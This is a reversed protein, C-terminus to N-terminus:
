RSGVTAFHISDFGTQSAVSLVPSIYKYDSKKDAQIIIRGKRPDSSETLETNKEKLLTLLQGISYTKGEFLYENDVVSVSVGPELMQSKQAVPLLIKKELEIEKKGQHTSVLLYIVIVAFADVLSTLMLPAAIQTLSAAGSNKPRVTALGDIASHAQAEKLSGFKLM